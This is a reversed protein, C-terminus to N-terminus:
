LWTKEKSKMKVLTRQFEPKNSEPCLEIAKSEYLIAKENRHLKYLLNAYTDLFLYRMNIYSSDKLSRESWQLAINLDKNNESKTFIAWADENLQLGNRADGFNAVFHLINRVYAHTDNEKAYKIAAKNIISDAQRPSFRYFAKRVNEWASVNDNYRIKAQPSKWTPEGIHMKYYTVALDIALQDTAADISKQEAVIAEKRNGEKYLLNAYTDLFYAVNPNDANDTLISKMWQAAKKLEVGSKSSSFISWCAMNMNYPNIKPDYKDIFNTYVRSFAEQDNETRYYNIQVMLMISDASLTPYQLNMQSKLTLWNPHEPLQKGINEVLDTNERQMKFVKVDWTSNVVQELVKDMDLPNGIWEILGTKGIIIATPISNIGMPKYWNETMYGESSMASSLKDTAVTYNMKDGMAQVFPEVLNINEEFVSIGIISVEKRYKEALKTIHPISQKCPICWTAWFEVVYIKGIEFKNVPQGKVWERVQITPPVDGPQLVQAQSFFSSLLVTFLLKYKL